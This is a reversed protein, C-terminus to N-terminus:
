EDSIWSLDTERFLPAGKVLQKEEPGGVYWLNSECLDTFSRLVEENFEGTSLHRRNFEIFEGIRSELKPILSYDAFWTGQDQSIGSLVAVPQNNFWLLTENTM